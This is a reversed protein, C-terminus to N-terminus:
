PLGTNREFCFAKVDRVLSLVNWERRRTAARSVGRRKSPQTIASSSDMWRVVWNNDM